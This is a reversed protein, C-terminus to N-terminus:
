QAQKHNNYNNHNNKKNFLFRALAATTEYGCSFGSSVSDSISVEGCDAEFPISELPRFTRLFPVTEMRERSSHESLGQLDLSGSALLSNLADRMSLLGNLNKENTSFPLCRGTSFTLSSSVRMIVKREAAGTHLLEKCLRRLLDAGKSNSQWLVELLGHTVSQVSHHHVIEAFLNKRWTVYKGAILDLDM